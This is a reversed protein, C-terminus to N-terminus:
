KVAVILYSWLDVRRVATPHFGVQRLIRAAMKPSYFRFDGDHSRHQLYLNIAQRLPFFFNPDILILRGGIRLVRYIERLAELPRYFHHLVGTLTAADFSGDPWPLFDEADCPRLDVQAKAQTLKEWAVELIHPALDTGSLQGAGTGALRLLLRGTACGVDLIRSSELQPGLEDIVMQDWRPVRCIKLWICDDYRDPMKFNYAQYSSIKYRDHKHFIPADTM